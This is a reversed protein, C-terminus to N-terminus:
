FTVIEALKVAVDQMGCKSLIDIVSQRRTMPIGFLKSLLKERNVNKYKNAALKYANDIVVDNIDGQGTGIQTKLADPPVVAQLMNSNMGSTNLLDELAVKSGIGFDRLMTKWVDPSATDLMDQLIDEAITGTIDLATKQLRGSSLQAVVEKVLADVEYAKKYEKDNELANAQECMYTVASAMDMLGARHEVKSAIKRVPADSAESKVEASATKVVQQKEYSKINTDLNEFFKQSMMDRSDLM